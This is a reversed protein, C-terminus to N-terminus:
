SLCHIRAGSKALDLLSSMTEVDGYPMGTADELVPPLGDFLSGASAKPDIAMTLEFVHVSTCWYVSIPQGSQESTGCTSVSSRQDVQTKPELLRRQLLRLRKM